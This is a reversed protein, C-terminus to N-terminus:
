GAWPAGKRLRARLCWTFVTTAVATVTFRVLAGPAPELLAGALLRATCIVGGLWVLTGLAVISYHTGARGGGASHPLHRPDETGDIRYRDSKPRVDPEYTATMDVTRRLDPTLTM